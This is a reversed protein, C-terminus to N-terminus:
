RRNIQRTITEDTIKDDAALLLAKSLIISLTRDGEFPLLVQDCASAEGRGPVICLYEDNPRMLINGSGLHIKYTRLKGEVVLFREEFSCRGAIKLRPVIRQLVEKRTQATASLDGFSFDHWYRVFRGERGGDLWNPDNGVSAVGVFLDVDRMIESFVLPPIEALPLPERESPRYFRVQDTSIYTYGTEHEDGAGSTWFEARLNCRALEREAARHDGGDWGGLLDAKWGRSKALVRFQAQRLIHAAFRNSYTSTQREADTLLYVERHAQKFPQTIHLAELRERWALVDSPEAILPHWLEVVGDDPLRVPRGRVDTPGDDHWLVALRGTPTSIQWVLSRGLRQAVPHIILHERWQALPLRKEGLWMRELRTALGALAERVGAATAKLSALEDAFDRKVAAPPAKLPKDKRTWVIEVEKSGVIRLEGRADGFELILRGPETFGFDPLREDALEEPDVGMRQAIVGLAGNVFKRQSESKLRAAITALPAAGSQGPMRCLAAGSAVALPSNNEYFYTAAQQLALPLEGAPLEACLWILGRMLERNLSHRVLMGPKSKRLLHLTRRLREAVQAAGLVKLHRLVDHRWTAAPLRDLQARDLRALDEESALLPNMGLDAWTVNWSTAPPEPVVSAVAGLFDEWSKRPGGPLSEVWTRLEDAWGDDPKLRSVTSSDCLKDIQGVLKASKKEVGKADTLSQRIEALLERVADPLPQSVTLREAAALAGPLLLLQEELQQSKAVIGLLLALDDATCPLNRRLLAALTEALLEAAPEQDLKRCAVLAHAAAIAFPYAKAPEYNTTQAISTKTFPQDPHKSWNAVHTALRQLEDAFQERHASAIQALWRPAPTEVSPKPM